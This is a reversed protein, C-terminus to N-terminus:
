LRHWQVLPTLGAHNRFALGILTQLRQLAGLEADCVPCEDIHREVLQQMAPDLEADFYAQINKSQCLCHDFVPQSM